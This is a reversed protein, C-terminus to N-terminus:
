FFILNMLTKEQVRGPEITPLLRLVYIQYTAHVCGTSFGM